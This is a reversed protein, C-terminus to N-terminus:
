KIYLRERFKKSKKKLGCCDKNRMKMRINENNYYKKLYDKNIIGKPKGTGIKKNNMTTINNQITVIWEFLKDSNELYKLVPFKKLHFAFNNRCEKCPLIFQLKEIFIRYNEIDENTPENPYGLAIVHLFQWSFQGWIRTVYDTM